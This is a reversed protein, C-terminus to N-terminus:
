PVDHASTKDFLRRELWERVMAEAQTRVDEKIDLWSIRLDDLRFWAYQQRVYRHTIFKVRQVAEDLSLQGLIYRGMERYGHSSMSPLDLSYGMELLRRVEEVFGEAVMREVRDDIRWYLEKRDGTLGIILVNYPPPEKLRQESFRRGTEYCVELARIVRRLNRPDIRRAAEPDLISLERHLSEAGQLRAREELQARLAPNPPVRPAQWGELVAWIYQGTGGVLFPLKGRGQIDKIARRALEQYLALSFDQDPDVIDILHHPAQAQEEPTPKATGIDMHRYVQRSDANVIEGGFARALHLSLETKGTATPGVIAVVRKM